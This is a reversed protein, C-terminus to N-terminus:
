DTEAKCGISDAIVTVCPINLFKDEDVHLPDAKANKIATYYFDDLKKIVNEAKCKSKDINLVIYLLGTFIRKDDNTYGLWDYGTAGLSVEEVRASTARAALTLLIILTSRILIKKVM